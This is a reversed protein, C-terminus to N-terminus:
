LREEELVEIGTLKWAGNVPRVDLDARYQNRRQHVHGWHGVSGAVIWTARARFGGAAAPEAVLDVLAMEKVKARAGGQNALELGRRTELYIETLLEGAVSTELLDYIQEEDRFDFARYVNHLLGSVVEETREGSLRAGGGLWFCGAALVLAVSAWAVSARRRERGGRRAVLVAGVLLLTVVVLPWRMRAAWRAVAGPPSSVAMMTPLTPNKLFNQWELVADDPILYSPFPGAEDVASTPVVQIRENFLDWEMTVRDPLGDTPYVFIAGLIASNADLEEAPDIVRSSRLTRELFNIQALEPSLTEGDITVPQRERLFEAVRRKMEDQMEVPIKRLGDIGLDIWAQLDKPRVIIEKRVEYPEVYIFGNMPAFYARRLARERFKSYFADNWDLVVTQSGTLYRFDNVAISEHYLVFGTSARRAITGGLTISVPRGPLSYALRVRIVTEPEEEEVPLPEGTIEDRRVREGPGMEVIRGILPPGDGAAIFLDEGFFTVLREGFPVPDNGLRARLEDPLLNSFAQLDKLGIELELEASGEQVYVEAITTAFMAQTRMIADASVATPALLATVLLLAGRPGVANRGTVASPLSGPNM